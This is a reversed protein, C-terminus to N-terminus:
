GHIEEGEALQHLLNDAALFGAVFAAFAAERDCTGQGDLTWWVEFAAHLFTAQEDLTM